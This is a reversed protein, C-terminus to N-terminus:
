AIIMKRAAQLLIAKEELSRKLPLQALGILRRMIEIGAIQTSLQHDLQSHYQNFIGQLISTDSTSLILHAAMVGIDFEAFGIFSFEPDIVFLQQTTQMWSGPYFDGHILTDGEALYQQGISHIITQLAQDKKYIMSLEQLGVQIDDLQFGNDELFPLVFIHQHNLQRLSLNAPFDQPVAQQHINSLFSILTTISENTISREAYINTMDECHGLDELMLLYDSSDYALISPIQQSPTDAQIAKYFRYEVDIRDLPAEIQQYKQVFPRSQKLIFSRQNTKVRLVVNMNGEGPKEIALIQETPSALWRKELLLEQIDAIDSHLDIYKVM